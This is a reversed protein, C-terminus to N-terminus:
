ACYHGHSWDHALERATLPLEAGTLLMQIAESAVDDIEEDSAGAAAASAVLHDYRWTAGEVVAQKLAQLISAREHTTKPKMQGM